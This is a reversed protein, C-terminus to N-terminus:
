QKHSGVYSVLIQSVIVVNQREKESLAWYTTTKVIVRKNTNKTMFFGQMIGKIQSTVPYVHKILEKYDRTYGINSGYFKTYFVFIM